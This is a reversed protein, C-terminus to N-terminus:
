VSEVENTPREAKRLEVRAAGLVIDMTVPSAAAAAAFAAHMAVSHIVAGSLNLRALRHHDLDATPVRSPFASAWIREREVQGPLVFPVIFRLRRTFAADLASRMNTALIAVGQFSEMRQLLYNVEINAYRDHSDRVESRKGFLADAEDFFLLVGGHEAADFLRRLNKETEGIYKSVVGSLDIHYLDLGLDNALVEAALTKGTGSEGTFLATIGLGRDSRGRWEWEDYVVGRHRAQSAISRLLRTPEPGLVIDDWTALTTRRQALADLHPRSLAKCSSRAISTSGESEGIGATVQEIESCDLDFEAALRSADDHNQSGLAACWLDRQEARTPTCVDHVSSVDALDSCVEPLSIFIPGDAEIALRRLTAVQAATLVDDDAAVLLGIPLLRSERRWLRALEDAAEFSTPLSAIPVEYLQRGCMSLALQGISRKSARNPGVLQAIAGPREAVADIIIQALAEHSPAISGAVPTIPRALAALRDDLLNMGKLFHVIREDLRLPRLTTPEGSGTAVALLGCTRLAGAPTLASWEPEEFLAMALGFTPYVRQRDDHATACLSGIRTDMEMAGCLLVIDQEFRSLGFAASLMTLAPPPTHDEAELMARRASEVVGDDPAADPGLAALRARLWTIAMGLYADNCEHWEAIDLTPAKSM